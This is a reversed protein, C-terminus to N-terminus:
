GAWSPIEGWGAEEVGQDAPGHGQEHALDQERAVGQPRHGRGGRASHGLVERAGEVRRGLRQAAAVLGQGM